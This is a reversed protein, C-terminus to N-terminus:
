FDYNGEKEINFDVAIRTREHENLLEIESLRIDPNKVVQCFINKFSETLNKVTSEKFLAARYGVGIGINGIGDSIHFELDYRVSPNTLLGSHELRIESLDNRTAPLNQYDFMVDFLPNRTSDREEGESLAIVLDEFPYDQNEIALLVNKKVRKLFDKFTDEKNLQNRLALLNSFMGVINRIDENGRCAVPSGVVIDEQGSEKFLLVNLIALFGMFMTVQQQSVLVVFDKVENERIAMSVYGGENTLIDPRAFDTPLNLALVKKEFVKLWFKKQSNMGGSEIFENQWEAFDKYQL